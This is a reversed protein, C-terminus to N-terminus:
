FRFIAVFLRLITTNYLRRVVEARFCCCHRGRFCYCCVATTTVSAVANDFCCWLDLRPQVWVYEYMSEWHVGSQETTWDGSGVQIPHSSPQYYNLQYGGAILMCHLDYTHLYNIVVFNFDSLKLHDYSNDIRPFMGNKLLHKLLHQIKRLIPYIKLVKWNQNFCTCRLMYLGVIPTDVM